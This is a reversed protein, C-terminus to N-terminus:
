SSVSFFFFLLCKGADRDIEMRKENAKFLIDRIDENNLFDNELKETSFSM